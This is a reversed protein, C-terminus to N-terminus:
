TEKVYTASVAAIHSGVVLVSRNVGEPLDVVYKTEEGATEKTKKNIM